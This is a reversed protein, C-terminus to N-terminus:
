RRSGALLSLGAAGTAALPMGAAEVEARGVAVGVDMGCVAVALTETVVVVTTRGALVATLVFCTPCPFPFPVSFRLASPSDEGAELRACSLDRGVGLVAAEALFGEDLGFFNGLLRVLGAGAGGDLALAAAAERGDRGADDESSSLDAVGRPVVAVASLELSSSPTM